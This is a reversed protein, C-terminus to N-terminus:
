ITCKKNVKTWKFGIKNIIKLLASVGGDFSWLGRKKTETDALEEKQLQRLPTRLSIM